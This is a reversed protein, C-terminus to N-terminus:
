QQHKSAIARPYPAANKNADHTFYLINEDLFGRTKLHQYVRDLTKAHAQRGEDGHIRGQVLIAYGASRGVLLVTRNSDSAQLIDTGGFRTQLTFVGKQGFGQVRTFRYEGQENTQTTQTQGAPEGSEDFVALEVFLGALNVHFVGFQTLKGSLDVPDNQRIAPRSGHLTLTTFAPDRVTVTIAHESVNGTYDFARATITYSGSPFPIDALDYSWSETPELRIWTLVTALPNRPNDDLYVLGNQIQLEIRQLGTDALNDAAEGRIAPIASVYSNDAPSTIRIRPAENDIIYQETRVTGPNGLADVSLFRVTTTTTISLPESFVPSNLDPVSGDQTYHIHRCDNLCRLQIDLPHREANYFGGPFFAHLPPLAENALRTNEFYRPMGDNAGSLTDWASILADWDGDGDLDALAPTSHWGVDVGNLPKDPGLRGSFVPDGANGTNEFYHLTGDAVGILADWDGDNDLDALAPHIYYGVRVGNLPNDPGLRESFVPNGADGTNEFYRLMGDEAGILMDWDGDNGLDALAPTSYGGVDVRDLPNELGLRESFVPNGANGTNEFYRLMGDEAGILADWDDDNDLDALAPVSDSGVNVGVLPNDPGLRESFVPNGVGSINEFYRLRGSQVGILVDWDGDNDLDALTIASGHELNVGDLPNDLGFRENFMPNGVNSTNEFYHPMSDFSGILMDWDGDNDLDALAPASVEGIDMNNFPNRLGLRESFMPNGVNGTNEFYRLTGDVAGILADWDGDNDLDTLAPVSNFEVDMRYLPNDPGLRESFVPNGAGGINEFYRLTGDNAGILADWDGDNDLDALASASNEGVDVGDLPNGPGIRESFVPNVASGTNEFYRLTGDNAGILADWDGDKDLDALAPASFYGVDVGGLPSVRESFMLTDAVVGKNEFYRTTGNNAGILADWDGDNDLDALAPTSERGLGFEVKNFPNDPGFRESFVPNGVNGINDFYRLMGDWSGILADWDGDNDLDALAPASIKGIDVENLPNDPGLRESFVPNEAGGINEFYHLTGDGAGILADWDGDNDLDALAPISKDGVDVGDLPNDLGLRESFMPNGSAGNNEFYRLMGDNTGILADWDGDNDLDALAPVSAGEVDVGYLPNDPGLRESFVPSGVDGTNEYYRIVGDWTGFFLDLDGDRDMDTFTRYKDDPGGPSSRLPNEEWAAEKYVPKYVSGINPYYRITGDASGLFMDLHGDRDMDAFAPQTWDPWTLGAFPNEEGAAERAFCARYSRNADCGSEDTEAAALTCIFLLFMGALFSLHTTNTM